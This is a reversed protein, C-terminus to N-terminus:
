NKLSREYCPIKLLRTYAEVLKNLTNSDAAIKCTFYRLVQDDNFKRHKQVETRRKIIGRINLIIWLYAKFYEKLFWQSRPYSLIIYIPSFVTMLLIVPMIKLLTKTSYFILMNLLRNRNLYYVRLKSRELSAIGGGAHWILPKKLAKTTYGLLKARLYISVDEHYMFYEEFFPLGMKERNYALVCGLGFLKDSDDCANKVYTGWISHLSKELFDESTMVGIVALNPDKRFESIVASLFNRPVKVDVNSIVVYRGRAREAGKNAGGAYGYNKELEIVAINQFKNKIFEVSGDTSANDVLIIEYHKKNLDQDLYSKICDDLFKLGNYNVIVVSILVM